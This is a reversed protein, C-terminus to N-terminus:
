SDPDNEDPEHTLFEVETRVSVQAGTAQRFSYGVVALVIAAVAIPAVIFIYQPGVITAVIGLLFVSALNFANQQVSQLGFLSGQRTVTTRRNIYVQVCQSASTSGFNGLAAIVGAALVIESLEIGFLPELLRLPSMWAFLPAVFDIMGLLISGLAIAILSVVALEREGLWHILWPGGLAGILYGIGAPAFIYISNTPDQDLVDRVYVPLLSNIGEFLAAVTVGVLMIGAVRPHSMIWRANYKLSLAKPKWDVERLRSVLSEGGREEAEPLHRIRVAGIAYLIAGVYLVTDISSVKILIPALFASGIASGISGVVNVLAGTTAMQAPTSVIAVASKVGPSIVQALASSVFILVLLAGTDTGFLTPTIFCLAALVVYSLFLIRRKSTTDALTGGQLGFLLAALYSASAALSIEFQSAGQVALYVMVGYSLTSAAMKAAFRSVALVKIQPIKLVDRYTPQREDGLPEARDAVQAM